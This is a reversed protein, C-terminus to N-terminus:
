LSNLFKIVQARETASMNMFANKSQEAEGGHWLIAEELNRARADHLYNTHNNVINFLGIGWLPPTRWEQGNALFEPSNDALGEGMDHLLLDTYPFILENSLADFTSHDGTTFQPNHCGSCNAEKFLAKGLLIDQDEWDRRAPVALTSTYLVVQSFNDADIEPNGGNPIEACDVSPPCNDDPFISSTIGMDGAFAAAVQQRVTPQNAKWGFRGITNSQAEVNWVYNARGSIGDGNADNEDVLALLADEPIAELLGMGIIQNAVRPSINSAVVEGEEQNVIQYIPRQLTYPTGDPYTGTIEEYSIRFDAETPVGLISQDQLQDGYNPDPIPGTNPDNGTSLRLLLGHVREGEFEPARGRGDKFHCGSCSRANFLPGIGDRATTSAPATVWNQNFLSNGVFFFLEQESNLNPNAFGFANASSRFVTGSGGSLEEGPVAELLLEETSCKIFLVSSLFFVFLIWNRKM